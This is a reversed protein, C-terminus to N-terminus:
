KMGPHRHHGKLALQPTYALRVMQHHARNHVAHKHKHTTTALPTIITPAPDTPASIAVPPAPDTAVPAAPPNPSPPGPPNTPLPLATVIQFTVTAQPDLQDFAVFIGTAVAGSSSSTNPVGNWTAKLTLSQGPQLVDNLIFLPNIGANSKWVVNGGQEVTFGDISPGERVTVAQNSTNTETFTLQVPQGAQYVSQNTTIHVAMASLLSREELPEINWAKRRRM